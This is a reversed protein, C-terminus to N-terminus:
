LVNYVFRKEECLLIIKDFLQWITEVNFSMVSEMSFVYQNTYRQVSFSEVAGEVFLSGHKVSVAKIIDLRVMHVM